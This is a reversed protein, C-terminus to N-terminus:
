GERTARKFEPQSMLKREFKDRKPPTDGEGWAKRIADMVLSSRKRPMVGPDGLLAEIDDTTPEAPPADGAQKNKQAVLARSIADFEPHPVWTCLDEVYARRLHKFSADDSGWDETGVRSYGQGVLWGLKAQFVATLQSRKAELLTRYHEAKLAISVRLFACLDEEVGADNDSRLFFYEPHNNNLLSEVQQEFRPRLKECMFQTKCLSQRRRSLALGLLESRAADYADRVVAVTIYPSKCYPGRRNPVLDCSQTLVIFARYKQERFHPHARELLQDLGETRQLLDGQHLQSEDPTEEYTFHM